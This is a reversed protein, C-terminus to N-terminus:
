VRASEPVQEQAFSPARLPTENSLFWALYFLAAGLFAPALHFWDQYGIIFHVGIAACFGVSGSLMMAQQFSRTRRAHFSLLVIAAGISLLGGGFGARDHAILPVLPSAISCIEPRTLAIYSLDEKVFVRTMGISMISTGAAMLGLGYVCYLRRGWRGRWTSEAASFRWLSQTRPAGARNLARWARVMGAGFVPLLALTAVGHWTDLYGYGLYSLFSGFGLVGSVLLTWWAWREGQRLPFEVLWLYLTGIAILSGGFAARDHFMFNVLARNGVRALQAADMGLFAVDQPLFHGTLCLFLAFAGSFILAVGTLAILFRGDGLLAEMLSREDEVQFSDIKM